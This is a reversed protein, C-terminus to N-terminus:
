TCRQHWAVQVGHSSWFRMCPGRSSVVLWLIGSLWYGRFVQAITVSYLKYAVSLNYLAVSLLCLVVGDVVRYTTFTSLLSSEFTDLMYQGTILTYRYYMLKIADIM